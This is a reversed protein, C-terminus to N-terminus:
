AQSSSIDRKQCNPCGPQQQACAYAGDGVISLLRNYIDEPSMSLKSMAGDVERQKVAALYEKCCENPEKIEMATMEIEM